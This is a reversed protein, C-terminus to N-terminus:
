LAAAFSIRFVACVSSVDKQEEHNAIRDRNQCHIEFKLWHFNALGYAADLLFPDSEQFLRIGRLM